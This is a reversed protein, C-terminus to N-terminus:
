TEVRCVSASFAWLSFLSKVVRRESACFSALARVALSSAARLDAFVTASAAFVTGPLATLLRSVALLRACSCPFRSM